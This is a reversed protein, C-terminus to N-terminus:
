KKGYLNHYNKFMTCVAYVPMSDNQKSLWAKDQLIKIDLCFQINDKKWKEDDKVVNNNTNAEDFALMELNEAECSSKYYIKPLSDDAIANHLWIAQNIEDHFNNEILVASALTNKLEYLAPYERLARSKWPSIVGLNKNIKEALNKGSGNGIYFCSFGSASSNFADSHLAIHYANGGMANYFNNSLEVAKQLRQNETMSFFEPCVECKFRKDKDFINKIKNALMRMHIEETDGFKCANWPQSSPSLFIGIAM